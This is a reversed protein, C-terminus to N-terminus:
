PLDKSCIFQTIFQHSPLTLNVFRFVFRSVYGLDYGKWLVANSRLQLLVCPNCFGLGLLVRRMEPRHARFM